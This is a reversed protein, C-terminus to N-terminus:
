SPRLDSPKTSIGDGTQQSTLPAADAAASSALRTAVGGHVASLWQINDTQRYSDSGATIGSDVDGPFCCCYGSSNGVPAALGAAKFAWRTGCSATGPVLGVLCSAGSDGVIGPTVGAVCDLRAAESCCECRRWPVCVSVWLVWAGAVAGAVAASAAAALLLCPQEPASPTPPAACCAPLALVRGPLSPQRRRQRM